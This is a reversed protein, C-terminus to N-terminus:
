LPWLAKNTADRRTSDGRPTSPTENDEDAARTSDGSPTSPMEGEVDAYTCSLPFFGICLSSGEPPWSVSNVSMSTSKLEGLELILSVMWSCFLDSSCM